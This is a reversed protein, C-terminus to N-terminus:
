HNALISVIVGTAIAVLLFDGNDSRVYRYGRPPERLNQGRWDDVVYPGDRYETPVYGGQRYWGEHRGRDYMGHYSHGRGQNGRGRGHDGRDQDGRGHDGRDQDRGQHKQDGYDQPQAVAAAASFMLLAGCVVWMSRQKNM